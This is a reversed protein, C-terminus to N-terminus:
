RTISFASESGLYNHAISVTRNKGIVVRRGGSFLEVNLKSSENIANLLLFVSRADFSIEYPTVGSIIEFGGQDADYSIAGEFHVPESDASSVHVTYQNLTTPFELIKSNVCDTAQVALSFLFITVLYLATKM